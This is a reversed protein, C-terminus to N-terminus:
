PLPTVNLQWLGNRGRFGGVVVAVQEGQDLRREVVSTFGEGSDDDCALEELCQPGYLALVTDLGSGVTDFRYTGAAPATWLIVHDRGMGACSPALRTAQADNNGSAIRQGTGSSTEAEQCALALEFVNLTVQDVGGLAAEDLGIIFTEGQRADLQILSQTNYPVDMRADGYLHDNCALEAGDCTSRAWLVTDGRSSITNFTYRGSRPARWRVTRERGLLGGCSSSLRAVAGQMSATYIAWEIRQGADDGPCVEEIPVCADADQCDEDACDISGDADDDRGDSCHVENLLPLGFISGDLAWDDQPELGLHLLATPHIDLHSGGEVSRRLASPGAVFQPIRQHSVIQEGHNRGSGGHDTVWLVLWDEREINPRLYLADILAGVMVDNGEIARIYDPNYPDFGSEHGSRDVDDLHVFHVQSEGLILQEVMAETVETDTGRAQFHLADPEIHEELIPRWHAAVASRLDLEQKAREFVTPFRRDLHGYFGNMTVRHKTPEVGTFISHWGPASKTAASLQTMASYSATGREALRDINLTTALALADARVGDMGIILVHPASPAEPRTLARLAVTITALTRDLAPSRIIVEASSLGSRVQTPELKIWLTDQDADIRAVLWPASSVAALACREDSLDLEIAHQPLPDGSWWDWALQTTATTITATEACPASGADPEDAADPSNTDPQGADLALPPSSADIVPADSAACAVKLLLSIVLLARM